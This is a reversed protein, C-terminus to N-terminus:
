NQDSRVGAQSSIVDRVPSPARKGTLSRRELQNSMVDTAEAAARIAEKKLAIYDTFVAIREPQELDLYTHTRMDEILADISFVQNYYRTVPGIVIGPLINIEDLSAKFITANQESPIFPTYSDDQEMRLVVSEWAEDLDFFELAQQYHLIEALLATQLDHRRIRRLRREARRKQWGNFIWGFAVFLGAVVAQPVRADMWQELGM